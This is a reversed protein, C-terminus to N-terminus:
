NLISENLMNFEAKISRYKKNLETEIEKVIIEGTGKTASIDEIMNKLENIFFDYDYQLIFSFIMDTMSIRNFAHWHNQTYSHIIQYKRENNNSFNTTKPERLKLDSFNESQLIKSVTTCGSGTRGTLGIVIFQERENYITDIAKAISM